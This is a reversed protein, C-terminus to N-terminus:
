LADRSLCFNNNFHKQYQLDKKKRAFCEFKRSAFFIAGSLFIALLILKNGNLLVAIKKFRFYAREPSGEDFIDVFFIDNGYPYGCITTWEGM